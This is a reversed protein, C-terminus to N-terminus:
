QASSGSNNTGAHYVASRYTTGWNAVEHIIAELSRGQSTLEYEVTVPKTEVVTRRVLQNMEMDQLEKSLIKAAIGDIERMLDMFRMKDNLLLTGLIHLKWKGSLIEMASKIGLIKGRCLDTTNYVAQKKM